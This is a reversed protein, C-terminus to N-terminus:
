PAVVNQVYYTDKRQKQSCADKGIGGTCLLGEPIFVYKFGELLDAKRLGHEM